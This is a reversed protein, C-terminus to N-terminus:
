LNEDLFVYLERRVYAIGRLDGLIEGAYDGWTLRDGRMRRLEVLIREVGNREVRYYNVVFELDATHYNISLNENERSDRTAGHVGLIESVRGRANGYNDTEWTYNSLVIFTPDYRPIQHPGMARMDIFNIGLLQNGNFMERKIIM